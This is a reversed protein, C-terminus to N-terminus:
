NRNPHSSLYPLDYLIACFQECFSVMITLKMMTMMVPLTWLHRDLYMCPSMCKYMYIRICVWIYITMERVSLVTLFSGLCPVCSSFCAQPLPGCLFHPQCHHKSCQTATALYTWCHMLGRALRTFTIIWSIHLHVCVCFLIDTSMRGCAGEKREWYTPLRHCSYLPNFKLELLSNTM